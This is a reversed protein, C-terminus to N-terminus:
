WILSLCQEYHPWTCLDANRLYVKSTIFDYLEAEVNACRILAPTTTTSHAKRCSLTPPTFWDPQAHTRWICRCKLQILPMAKFFELDPFWGPESDKAPTIIHEHVLWHLGEWWLSAKQSPASRIILSHCVLISWWYFFNPGAFHTCCRCFLHVLPILIHALLYARSPAPSWLETITHKM